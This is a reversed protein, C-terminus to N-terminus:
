RSIELVILIDGEIYMYHLCCRILMTKIIHIILKFTYFSTFLSLEM